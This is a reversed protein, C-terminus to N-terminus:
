RGFSKIKERVVTQAVETVVRAHVTWLPVVELGVVEAPDEQGHENDDKEDREWDDKVISEM